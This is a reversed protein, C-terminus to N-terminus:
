STPMMLLQTKHWYGQIWNLRELALMAALNLCMKSFTKEGRPKDLPRMRAVEPLAVMSALIFHLIIGYHTTADVENDRQQIDARIADYYAYNPGCNISGHQGYRAYFNKIERQVNLLEQNFVEIEDETIQDACDFRFDPPIVRLNRLIEQKDAEHGAEGTNNLNMQSIENIVDDM